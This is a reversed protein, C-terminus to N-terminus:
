PDPLRRDRRRGRRAPGGDAARGRPHALRRPELVLVRRGALWPESSCGCRSSRRRARGRRPSSCRWGVQPWRRACAPSRRSWRCTPSGRRSRWRLRHGPHRQFPGPDGAVPVNPRTWATTAAIVDAVARWEISNWGEAAAQVTGDTRLFVFAPLSSSGSPGARLHSRPRLVRPVPRRAPRPVDASRPAHVHRRLQGTRRLRPVRPPDPGRDAPDVREREHVPGARREGPPVHHAVGRGPAARGAAAHAHHRAVPQQGRSGVTALLGRSRACRERGSVTGGPAGWRVDGTRPRTSRSAVLPHDDALGRGRQAPRRISGAPRTTAHRRIM